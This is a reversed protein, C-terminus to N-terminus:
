WFNETIYIYVCLLCHSLLKARNPTPVFFFGPKLRAKKNIYEIKIDLQSILLSYEKLINKIIEEAYKSGKAGKKVGKFDIIKASFIKHFIYAYVFIVCYFITLPDIDDINEGYTLSSANTKKTSHLRGVINYLINTANNIFANPNIPEIFIVSDIAKKLISWIKIKIENNIDGFKTINKNFEIDSELESIKESCISCYYISVNDNTYTTKIYKNLLSLIEDHSKLNVEAKLKDVVHPCILQYGCKKCM